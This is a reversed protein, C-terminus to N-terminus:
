KRGYTSDHNPAALREPKQPTLLNEQFVPSNLDLRVTAETEAKAM